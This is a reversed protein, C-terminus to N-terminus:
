KPQNDKVFDTWESISSEKLPKLDFEELNAKAKNAISALTDTYLTFNPDFVGFEDFDKVSNELLEQRTRIALMMIYQTEFRTFEKM